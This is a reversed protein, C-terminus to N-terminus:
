FEFKVTTTVKKSKLAEQALNEATKTPEVVASDTVIDEKAFLSINMTPDNYLKKM